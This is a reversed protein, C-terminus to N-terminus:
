DILQLEVKSIIIERRDDWPMMVFDLCTEASLNQM